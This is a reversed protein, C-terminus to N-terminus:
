FLVLLRLYKLIDFEDKPVLSLYPSKSKLLLRKVHHVLRGISGAGPVSMDDM